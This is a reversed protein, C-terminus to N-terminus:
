QSDRVFCSLAVNGPHDFFVENEAVFLVEIGFGLWVGLSFYQYQNIFLDPLCRVKKIRLIGLFDLFSLFEHLRVSSVESERGREDEGM